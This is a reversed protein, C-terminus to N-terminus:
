IAIEWIQAEVFGTKLRRGTDRYLGSALAAAALPENESWTKVLIENPGLSAEPINVTLVGYPIGDDSMYRLAVRRNAYERVELTTKYTKGYAKVTLKQGELRDRIAQDMIGKLHEHIAKGAKDVNATKMTM